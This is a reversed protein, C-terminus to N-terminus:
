HSVDESDDGRLHGLYHRCNAPGRARLSSGGGLPVKGEPCEAALEASANPELVFEESQVLEWGALVAVKSNGNGHDQALGVAVCVIALAVAFVGIFVTRRVM